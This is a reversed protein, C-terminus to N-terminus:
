MGTELYPRMVQEVRCIRAFKLIEAPKIRKRERYLQLAELAVDQGIKNRFKFSDALTKEASYVQLSAGDITVQEIGAGFAKEAFRYPQIPPYDLKPLRATRSVALHIQHPIQTTIGHWSLASILCLVANPFRLAVTVLDPNSVPPLEALRYLGRSLSELVGEDRMRYLQYRSIGAALAEHMRLQGGHARFIAAPSITPRAESM